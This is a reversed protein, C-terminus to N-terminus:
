RNSRVRSERKKIEFICTKADKSIEANRHLKFREISPIDEIVGVIALATLCRRLLKSEGNELYYLAVVRLFSSFGPEAEVKDQIYERQFNIFRPHSLDWPMRRFLFDKANFLDKDTLDM